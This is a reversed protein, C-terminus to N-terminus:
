LRDWMKRSRFFSNDNYFMGFIEGFYPLGMSPISRAQYELAMLLETLYRIIQLLYLQRYPAVAQSIGTRRSAQVANMWAGSDEATFRVSAMPELMRGIVSARYEIEAKKRHSVHNEYLPMDVTDAWQEICDISKDEQGLLININSYRGSSEAFTGLVDLIARRISPDMTNPFRFGVKRRKAVECCVDYLKIIQHGYNRIYGEAPLAGQHDIMFDVILCLKAFRELGTSLCTFSQYYIGKAAYNARYLQTVGIALIEKTFAAEKQFALTIKPDSM